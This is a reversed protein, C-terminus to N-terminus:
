PHRSPQKDSQSAITYAIANASSLLEPMFVKFSPVKEEMCRHNMGMPFGFRAAKIGCISSLCPFVIKLDTADVFKISCSGHIKLCQLCQPWVKGMRHRSSPGFM